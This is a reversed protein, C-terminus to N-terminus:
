RICNVYLSYPKHSIRERNKNKLFNFGKDLYVSRLCNKFGSQKAFLEIKEFPWDNKHWTNFVGKTIKKTEETELLSFVFKVFETNTLQNVKNRILEDSINIPPGNYYNAFREQLCGPAGPVLLIPPNSKLNEQHKFITLEHDFNNISMICGVLLQELSNINTKYVKWTSLNLEGILKKLAIINKQKYLNIFYSQNPVVIRFIGENKLSSFSAAFINKATQDNIHELFHSCYVLTINKKNIGFNKNIVLKNIQQDFNLWFFTEKYKGSGIDIYKVFFFNFFNIVINKIFIILFLVFSIIKSKYYINNKLFNYLIV